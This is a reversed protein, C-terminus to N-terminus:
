EESLTANMEEAIQKCADEMSMNGSYVDKFIESARNEWTVTNRSYPRVVMDDRMDLYAQLNFEPACGAWTDSTGDWASMTIGLEAQKQQAKESGLYEILKWANETNDGNAAAAWGLGNYISVRRGSDADMPMVACDCNEKIYDEQKFTSVMWSGHFSMASKGSKLLIDPNNESMTEMSPMSGDQILKEIYQMAKITNPDDYGSTKKDDSIIEGGMDYVINYYAEQNNDNRIAIGYQSGDEKTLKKANEVVTDWTWTEDPYDVGAEDFMTKNYWLAITDIDKPIGYVKGDYTYLEKIEEPYKSMDVLESDSAKDTLDLLIENSMYRQSENSHMWFVDPMEGGQAGAELLTWYENWQVVQLEAEIGTEETFDAIIEKLGPEQYNDWIMVSLKGGKDKGGESAGKDGSGGCAALSATMVACMCLAAIRRTKM